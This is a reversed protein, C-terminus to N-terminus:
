RRTVHGLKPTFLDFTVTTCLTIYAVASIHRLETRLSRIWKMSPHYRKLGGVVIQTGVSHWQLALQRASALFKPTSNVFTPRM